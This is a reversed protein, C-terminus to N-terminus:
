LTVVVVMCITPIENWQSCEIHLIEIMNTTSSLIKCFSTLTLFLIETCSNVFHSAVLPFLYNLTPTFLDCKKIRSSFWWICAFEEVDGSFYLKIFNYPRALSNMSYDIRLKIAPCTMTAANRRSWLEYTVKEVLNSLQSVRSFTEHIMLLRDIIWIPYLM